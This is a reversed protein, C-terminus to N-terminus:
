TMEFRKTRPPVFTNRPSTISAVSRDTEHHTSGQLAFRALHRRLAVACSICCLQLGMLPFGPPSNSAHSRATGRKKNQHLPSLRIFFCAPCANRDIWSRRSSSWFAFRPVGRPSGSMISDSRSCPVPRDRSMSRLPVTIAPLLVNRAAFASFRGMLTTGNSPLNTATSCRSSRSRLVSRDARSSATRSLRM